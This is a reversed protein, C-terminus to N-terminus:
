PRRSLLLLNLGNLVDYLALFQARVDDPEAGSRVAVLGLIEGIPRAGDIASVLAPALRPVALRLKLGDAESRLTLDGAIARALAPGDHRPLRPVADDDPRAIRGEAHAAKALYCVHSKLNGALAEAFGAEAEPDLGALPALLRPDRLYTAPRYRAAPVLSVLALGAGRVLACLEAVLYARDRPHLLLDVLEADGRRHDGLVPNRRFGNTDPLADLLRRALEVREPLDRGAGLTRLLGQLPYLGSRGLTGYVMVGLGGHDELVAALAALGASPDALHHLVGCCDIYDFPGLGLAPLDEIAGTVFAINGLSRAAARAEAIARAARSPDLYVLTGPGGGEAARDALQQALMIAGDGTGGGAILARFPRGAELAGAFLYHAIEPLSSPSGTVLRRAEDDPDRAPYPYAEYQGLVPDPAQDAPSM